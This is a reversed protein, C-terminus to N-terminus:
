APPRPNPDWGGRRIPTGSLVKQSGKKMPAIYTGTDLAIRVESDTYVAHEILSRVTQQREYPSLEVFVETFNKLVERIMQFDVKQANGEAIDEEKLRIQRDNEQIEGATKEGKSELIAKVSGPDLPLIRRSELAKL